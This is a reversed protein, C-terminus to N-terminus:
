EYSLLAFNRCFAYQTSSLPENITVVDSMSSVCIFVLFFFFFFSYWISRNFITFHLTSKWSFLFSSFDIFGITVTWFILNNSWTWCIPHCIFRANHFFLVIICVRLIRILLFIHQIHKGYGTCVRECVCVYVNCLAFRSFYIYTSDCFWVYYLVSITKSQMSAFAMKRGVDGNIAGCKIHAHIVFRKM